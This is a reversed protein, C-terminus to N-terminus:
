GGQADLLEGVLVTDPQLHGLTGDVTGEDLLESRVLASRGLLRKKENCVSWACNLDSSLVTAHAPVLRVAAPRSVALLKSRGNNAFHGNRLSACTDFLLKFFVNDAGSAPYAGDNADFDAIVVVVRRFRILGDKVLKM